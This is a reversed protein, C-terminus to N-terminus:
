SCDLDAVLLLLQWSGMLKIQISPTVKVLDVMSHDLVAETAKTALARELTFQSHRVSLNISAMLEGRDVV